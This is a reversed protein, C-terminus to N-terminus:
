GRNRRVYLIDKEFNQVEVCYGIASCLNSYGAIFMGDLYVEVDDTDINELHYEHNGYGIEIRTITNM